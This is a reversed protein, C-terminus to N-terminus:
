KIFVLVTDKLWCGLKAESINCMVCCIYSEFFYILHCPQGKERCVIFKYAFHIYVYCVFIACNLKNWIIHFINPVIYDDKAETLIIWHDSIQLSWINNPALEFYLVNPNLQFTCPLFLKSISFFRIVYTKFLMCM